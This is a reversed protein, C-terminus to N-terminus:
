LFSNILWVVRLSKGNLELPLDRHSQRTTVLVLGKVQPFQAYRHLQRLVTEFSDKTKVEVGVDEVMFDIRDRPTLPFEAKWDLNNQYFVLAIAHQLEKESNYRYSHRFLLDALKDVTIGDM